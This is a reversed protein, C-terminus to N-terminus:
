CPSVRMERIIDDVTEASSFHEEVCDIVDPLEEAFVAPIEPEDADEADRALWRYLQGSAMALGIAAFIGAIVFFALTYRLLLLGAMILVLMLTMAATCIIAKANNM